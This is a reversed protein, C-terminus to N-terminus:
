NLEETESAPALLAPDLGYTRQATGAFLTTREDASMGVTLRKFANWLTRYSYMAKDVPFNSEFMCREPGFLDICTEVYPRWADALETSSPPAPREHWMAGCIIMGFGGIKVSVNPCDALARMDSRWQDFREKESHEYPGVGLVCGIHDLVIPLDPIARAMAGLEPIQAHYLMADYVLGHAVLRSLGARYTNDALMGAPAPRLVIGNPFHEDRSVSHRIGSLANGAVARHAELVEDVANGLTLDAFAVIGEAIRTPCQRRRAESRIEMVKETEGVPALHDPGTKRYGYHAQVFVTASITHGGALDSSIEDILYPAGGEEWLHHHADIIPLGPEIVDEQVLALWEPNPPPYRYHGTVDLGM